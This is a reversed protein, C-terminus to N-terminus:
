ARHPAPSLDLEIGRTFRLAALAAGVAAGTAAAFAWRPGYANTFPGAALFALGLV